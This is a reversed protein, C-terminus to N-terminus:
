FFWFPSTMTLKSKRSTMSKTQQSIQLDIFEKLETFNEDSLEKQDDQDQENVTQRLAQFTNVVVGAFINRFILSAILVWLLTYIIPFVSDPLLKCWSNHLMAYWHDITFIQYLTLFAWYL